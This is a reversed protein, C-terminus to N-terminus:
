DPGRKAVADTGGSSSPGEGVLSSLLNQLLQASTRPQHGVPHEVRMKGHAGGCL